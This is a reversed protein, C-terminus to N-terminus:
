DTLNIGDADITKPSLNEIGMSVAGVVSAVLALIKVIKWM